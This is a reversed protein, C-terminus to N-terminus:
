RYPANAKMRLEQPKIEAIQLLRGRNMITIFNSSRPNWGASNREITGFKTKLIEVLVSVLTPSRMGCFRSVRSVRGARSLPPLSPGASGM